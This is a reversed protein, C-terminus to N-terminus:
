LMKFVGDNFLDDDKMDILSNVYKVLGFDVDGDTFVHAAEIEDSAKSRHKAQVLYYHYEDGIKIKLIADDFKNCEFIETGLHFDLNKSLCRYALLMLLKAQYLYGKFGSMQVKDELEEVSKNSNNEM